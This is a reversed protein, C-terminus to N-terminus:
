LNRNKESCNKYEMSYEVRIQHHHDSEVIFTKGKNRSFKTLVTNRNEDIDMKSVMQYLSQCVIFFDIVSKEVTAGKKRMRTIIKENPM